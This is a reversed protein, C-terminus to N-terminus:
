EHTEYFVFYQRITAEDSILVQAIPKDYIRTIEILRDLVKLLFKNHVILMKKYKWSAKAFCIKRVNHLTYALYKFNYTYM